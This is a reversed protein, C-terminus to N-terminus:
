FAVSDRNEGTSILGQYQMRCFHQRFAFHLILISFQFNFIAFEKGEGKAASPSLGM